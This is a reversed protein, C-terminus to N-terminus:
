EIGLTKKKKMSGEVNMGYQKTEERENRPIWSNQSTGKKRRGGSKIYAVFHLM